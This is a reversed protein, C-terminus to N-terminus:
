DNKIRGYLWKESLTIGEESLEKKIKEEEEKQLKEFVSEHNEKKVVILDKIEPYVLDVVVPSHTTIIVQSKSNKLEDILFEIAKAYLSNEIEDIVILAPKLEIATILTLFKFFGTSISPPLLELDNERVKIFIRGDETLAVFVSVDPFIYSLSTRIGKPIEGNQLMLTHLVNALNKGNEALVVNKSLNLPASIEVANIDKLIITNKIFNLIKDFYPVVEEFLSEPFESFIFRKFDEKMFRIIPKYVVDDEGVVRILRSPRAFSGELIFNTTGSLDHQIINIKGGEKVIKYEGTDIADKIIKFNGHAGTIEGEYVIFKEKDNAKDKFKLSFKITLNENHMFVVNNYGWWEIFPNGVNEVYTNEGYIKRLLKFFEILNTKGSMNKGVVVNFKELEVKCSKFSKFNEIYIEKLEMKFKKDRLLRKM